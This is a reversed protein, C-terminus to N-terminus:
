GILSACEKGETKALIRYIWVNPDFHDGVLGTVM